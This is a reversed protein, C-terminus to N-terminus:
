LLITEGPDSTAGNAQVSIAGLFRVGQQALSSHRTLLEFLEGTMYTQFSEICGVPSRMMWKSHTGLRVFLDGSQTAAGLLQTEEGRVVDWGKDDCGTKLGPVIFLSTSAAAASRDTTRLEVRGLAGALSSLDAPCQVYPVEVIGQRSGIMGCALLPVRHETVWDSPHLSRSRPTSTISQEDLPTAM